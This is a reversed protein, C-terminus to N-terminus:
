PQAGGNPTSIPVRYVSLTRDSLIALKSGDPSIALDCDQKPPPSAAVTMVRKRRTLEYVAAHLSVIHGGTDWTDRLSELLVAAHSGNQAMEIKASQGENKGIPDTMLVEGNTSSIVVDRFACMLLSGTLFIASRGPKCAGQPVEFLPKWVASGFGTAIVTGHGNEYRAAAIAGDTIAYNNIIGPSQAWSLKSKLTDGDLVEFHSVSLGDQRSIHYHNLLVTKRTPSIRIEWGEDPVQSIPIRRPESFDKSYLRLLEGTRIIVGGSTVLVTTDRVRTGWEKDSTIKGSASNIVSIHLRFPSSSDPSPRSSLQSTDLSVYHVILREDDLFAVGPPNRGVNKLDPTVDSSWLATPTVADEYGAGRTGVSLAACLVVFCLGRNM